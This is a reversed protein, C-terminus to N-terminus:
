ENNGELLAIEHNTLGYPYQEEKSDKINEINALYVKKYVEFAKRSAETDISYLHQTLVFNQFLQM